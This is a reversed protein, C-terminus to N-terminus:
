LRMQNKVNKKERERKEISNIFQHHHHSTKAGKAVSALV